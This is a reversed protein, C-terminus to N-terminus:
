GSFFDVEGVAIEFLLDFDVGNEVLIFHDVNDTDGSTFTELTDDFSVTDFM